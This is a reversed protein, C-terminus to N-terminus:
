FEVIRLFIKKNAVSLLFMNLLTIASIILIIKKAMVVERYKSMYNEMNPVSKLPIDGQFRTVFCANLRKELFHRNKEM